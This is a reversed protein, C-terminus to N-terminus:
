PHENLLQDVFHELDMGNAELTAKLEAAMINRSREFAEINELEHHQFSQPSMMVAVDKQGVQIHVPEFASQRLVDDLTTRLQDLTASQM